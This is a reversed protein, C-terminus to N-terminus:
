TVRYAAHHCVPLESWAMSVSPKETLPGINTKNDLCVTVFRNIFPHLLTCISKIGYAFDNAEIPQTDDTDTM